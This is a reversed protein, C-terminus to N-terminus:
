FVQKHYPGKYEIFFMIAALIGIIAGIIGPYLLTFQPTGALDGGLWLIAIVAGLGSAIGWCPTCQVRQGTDESVTTRTNPGSQYSYLERFVPSMVQKWAFIAGVLMTFAFLGAMVTGAYDDFVASSIVSQIIFCISGAIFLIVSKMTSTM